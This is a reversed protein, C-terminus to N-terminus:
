GTPDSVHLRPKKGGTDPGPETEYETIEEPECDPTTASPGPSTTVM